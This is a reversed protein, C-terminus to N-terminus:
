PGGRWNAPSRPTSSRHTQPQRSPASAPPAPGHMWQRLADDCCCVGQWGAQVGRLRRRVAGAARRRTRSDSASTSGPAAAPPAAAPWPAGGGARGARATASPLALRRCHAKQQLMQQRKSVSAGRGAVAVGRLLGEQARAALLQAQAAAAAALRQSQLKRPRRAALGGPAQRLQQSSPVVPPTRPSTCPRSPPGQQQRCALAARNTTHREGRGRGGGGAGWGRLSHLTSSRQESSRRSHLRHASDACSCSVSCPSSSSTPQHPRPNPAWCAMLQQAWPTAM